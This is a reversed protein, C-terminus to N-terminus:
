AHLRVFLHVVHFSRFFIRSVIIRTDKQVTHLLDMYCHLWFSIYQRHGGLRMYTCTSVSKHICPYGVWVYVCKEMTNQKVRCNSPKNGTDQVRSIFSSAMALIHRETELVDRTRAIEDCSLSVSLVLPSSLM